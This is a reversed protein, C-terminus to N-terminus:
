LQQGGNKLLDNRSYLKKLADGQTQTFGEINADM